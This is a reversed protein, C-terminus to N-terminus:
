STANQHKEVEGHWLWATYNQCIGDCYLHHSIEEKSWKKINGCNVCHCFFVGNNGPLKQEAFEVFELVEKEYMLGLRDTKMWSRDM